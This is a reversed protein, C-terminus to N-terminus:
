ITTSTSMTMATHADEVPLAGAIPGSTPPMGAAVRVLFPAKRREVASWSHSCRKRNWQLPSRVPRPRLQQELARELERALLPAREAVWLEESSRGRPPAVELRPWM